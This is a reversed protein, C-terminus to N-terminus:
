RLLNFIQRCNIEDIKLQAGLQELESFKKEDRIRQFFEIRLEQDYIIDDFNFLHVEIVFSDDSISPRNGLNLMGFYEQGKVLM